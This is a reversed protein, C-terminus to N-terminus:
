LLQGRLRDQVVEHADLVLRAGRCRDDVRGATAVGLDVLPARVDLGLLQLDQELLEDVEGAAGLVDDEGARERAADVVAKVALRDSSSARRAAAAAPAAAVSSSPAPRKSGRSAPRRTALM